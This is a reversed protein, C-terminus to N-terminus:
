AFIKKRRRRLQGMEDNRCRFRIATFFKIRFDNLNMRFIIIQVREEFCLGIYLCLCLGVYTLNLQVFAFEFSFEEPKHKEAGNKSLLRCWQGLSPCFVIDPLVSIKYQGHSCPWRGYELLM